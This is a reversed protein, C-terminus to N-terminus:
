ADEDTERTVLAAVEARADTFRPAPDVVWRHREVDGLVLYPLRRIWRGRQLGPDLEEWPKGVASLKERLQRVSVGHLQRQSFTSQGLAAVSNRIADQQRWVLCNIAEFVSPVNFVRADFMTLRGVGDFILPSAMTMSSAACSAAVSAIKQVKGGFWPEQRPECRSPVVITIEDSQVFGVAAGQVVAALVGGAEDMAAVFPLSFPRGLGKTWTHFARGDVRVIWPLDPDITPGQAAEYAKMREHLTREDRDVIQGITSEVTLEWEGLGDKM